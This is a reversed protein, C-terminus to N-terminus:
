LVLTASGPDLLLCLWLPIVAALAGEGRRRCPLICPFTVDALQLGLPHTLPKLLLHSQGNLLM